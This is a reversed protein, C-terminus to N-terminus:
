RNRLEGNVSISDFYCKIGVANNIDEENQIHFHLHPGTSNGSNGCRGLLDGVKVQQGQKVSVSNQQFHAFLLYEGNDTKLMVSNGPLFLPNEVGPNNDKIGDVAFVIEGNCPAIIPQGFAFYDENTKGDTKYLNNNADTLVIDFANKQWVAGLHRNQEKTDGGWAVTWEGNFPLRVATRNEESSPTRDQLETFLLGGILHDKDLTLKMQLTAKEYTVTYIHYGSTYREYKWEKMAGVNSYQKSFFEKTKELPLKSRFRSNFLSFIEAHDQKNYSTKIDDAILNALVREQQAVSHTTQFVIFLILIHKFRHRM